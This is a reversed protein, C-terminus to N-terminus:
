RYGGKLKARTAEPLRNTPSLDYTANNTWNFAVGNLGLARPLMEVVHGFCDLAVVGPQFMLDDYVVRGFPTPTRPKNFAATGTGNSAGISEGPFRIVVNSIALAPQSITLSPVGTANTAFVVQWPGKGSQRRSLWGYAIFYFIVALAVTVIISKWSTAHPKM